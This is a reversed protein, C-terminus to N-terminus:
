FEPQLVNFHPLSPCLMVVSGYQKLESFLLAALIM